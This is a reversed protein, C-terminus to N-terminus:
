KCFCACLHGNESIGPDAPLILVQGALEVGQLCGASLRDELLLDGSRPASRGCNAFSIADSFSPSTTRTVFSSLSPREV